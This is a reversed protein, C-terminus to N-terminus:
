PFFVVFADSALDVFAVNFDDFVPVVLLRSERGGLRKIVLGAGKFTPRFVSFGIEIGLHLIIHLPSQVERM